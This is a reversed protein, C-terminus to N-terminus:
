GVQTRIRLPFIEETMNFDADEESSSIIGPNDDYRYGVFFEYEKNSVLLTAILNVTKEPQDFQYDLFIKNEIIDGYIHLFGSFSNDQPGLKKSGM